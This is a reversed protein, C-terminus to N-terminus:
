PARKHPPWEFELQAGEQEFFRCHSVHRGKLIAIVSHGPERALMYAQRYDNLETMIEGATRDDYIVTWIM